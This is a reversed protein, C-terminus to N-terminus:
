QLTVLVMITGTGSDLSGLAKGIVAGLMRSRDTGKMARGPTSSSVLLDGVQIPGNEASVRTPVRGVMAMPVEAASTKDTAPHLRGVFGPKTSYVGAVLTSYVQAVKLFEGPHKPDIVLVDGPEYKARNGTVGVSEAYDAGCNSPIFATTQTTGDQFTISGGSNTTLKINGNVELQAGPTTTGIGVSGNSSMVMKPITFNLASGGPKTYFALAGGALTGTGAQLAAIGAIQYHADSQATTRTFYIGGVSAGSTNTDSALNLVAQNLDRIQLTRNNQSFLQYASTSNVYSAGGGIDLSTGPTSTGVGLAGSDTVTLTNSGQKNTLQIGGGNIGYLQGAFNNNGDLLGLGLSGYPGIRAVNDIQLGGLRAVGNVDLTYAPSATGIGVNGSSPFTNQASAGITLVSFVALLFKAPNSTM